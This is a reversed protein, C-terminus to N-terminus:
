VKPKEPGDIFTQAQVGPCSSNLLGNSIENALVCLLLTDCYPDPTFMLRWFFLRAVAWAVTRDLMSTNVRWDPFVSSCIRLMKGGEVSTTDPSGPYGTLQAPSAM